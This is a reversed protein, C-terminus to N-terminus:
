AAIAPAEPPTEQRSLKRCIELVDAFSSAFFDAGIMARNREDFLAQDEVPWLGVLIPTKPPLRQRLRRILYRLQAQSSSM